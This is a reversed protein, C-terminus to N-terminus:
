CKKLICELKTKIQLAWTNNVTLKNYMRCINIQLNLIIATEYKNRYQYKLPSTLCNCMLNTKFAIYEEQPWTKKLYFFVWFILSLFTHQSPAQIEQAQNFYSIEWQHKVAKQLLCCCNRNRHFSATGRVSSPVQLDKANTYKSTNLSCASIHLARGTGAAM